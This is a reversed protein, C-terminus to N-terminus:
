TLLIHTFTPPLLLLLIHVQESPMYDDQKVNTVKDLFSFCVICTQKFVDYLLPPVRMVHDILKSTHAFGLGGISVDVIEYCNLLDNMVFQQLEHFTHDVYLVADVVVFLLCSM